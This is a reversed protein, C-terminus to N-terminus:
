SVAFESQFFIEVSERAAELKKRAEAAPWGSPAIRSDSCSDRLAGRQDYTVGGAETM